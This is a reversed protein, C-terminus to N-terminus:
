PRLAAAQERSWRDVELIRALTLEENVTDERATWRDLIEQLGRAIEMFGIEGRLFGGVLIEDAANVATPATGGRIGAAHVTAFAPYRVVDLPKFSLESMKTLSLRPLGTAVRAPYTLAYQIPIRMDSAALEAIISGDQYEVLSHIASQPHIVPNIKEYPVDFLYHAEIVEFAKNVMTASDITIRSGMSWNPHHLADQASVAALEEFPTNLFPGGSATIIIREIESHKGAQMSQFIANHESDIPLITGGKERLSEKVLEGGIVMSEKNALALTRGSALTTLTPSLGIAGVLANVVLDVNSLSALEELGDCGSLVTLDPFRERLVQAGDEEAVSVIRPSFHEIQQTLLDINRGASLGVVNMAHGANNLREIVDLTQTGISGTSGLIVIHRGQV